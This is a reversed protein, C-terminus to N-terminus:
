WLHSAFLLAFADHVVLPEIALKASVKLSDVDFKNCANRFGKALKLM